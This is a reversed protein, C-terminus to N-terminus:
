CVQVSNKEFGGILQRKSRLSLSHSLKGARKSGIQPSVTFRRWLVVGIGNSRYHGPSEMNLPM